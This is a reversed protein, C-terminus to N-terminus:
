STSNSAVSRIRGEVARQTLYQALLSPFSSVEKYSPFYNVDVVVMTRQGTADNETVLIDFGFLELQFSRRLATAIPRIEDATVLKTNALGGINRKHWAVGKSMKRPSTNTTPTPGDQVTVRRKKALTDTHHAQERPCVLNRQCNEVAPQWTKPDWQDKESTLGFDDLRPYPRQSDFEVYGPHESCGQEGRPLNPLSNRPFVRVTDGLVYVKFLAGGHNEYEQLICPFHVRRLGQRNLVVMMHHSAKTGAAPLPKVIMPFTFPATGALRQIQPLDNSKVVVFRPTSAPIGSRTTVGDLCKSLIRAIESRSMLAQVHAPHDVLCCAPHNAKYETLRGVRKAQESIPPKSAHDYSNADGIAGSSSRYDTSSSKSLYLIDETM